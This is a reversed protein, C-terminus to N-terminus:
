RLRRAGDEDLGEKFMAAWESVKDINNEIGNLWFLFILEATEAKRKVDASSFNIIQLTKKFLYLRHSPSSYTHESGPLM